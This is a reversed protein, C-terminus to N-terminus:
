LKSSIETQTIVCFICAASLFYIYQMTIMRLSPSCQLNWASCQTGGREECAKWESWWPTASPQSTSHVSSQLRIWCESPKLKGQKVAATMEPWWCRLENGTKFTKTIFWGTKWDTRPFCQPWQEPKKMHFIWQFTTVPWLEQTFLNEPLGSKELGFRKLMTKPVRSPITKKTTTKWVTWATWTLYGNGHESLDFNQFLYIIKCGLSRWDSDKWCPNQSALTGKFAHTNKRKNEFHWGVVCFDLSGMCM